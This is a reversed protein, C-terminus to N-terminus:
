KPEGQLIFAAWYYPNKWREQEAMQLQARRLASAPSLGEHFMASYFRRMLESTAVDDVAWLSAVVRSAGAYMFGRTLGVLGEGKINRGLGTECASLVVLDVPLNLNYIDQMELFGNQLKGNKGILSFVLGSLEPHENDLLGHTAFHVVQYQGLAPSMAKKRSADFGLAVMGRGPPITAMIARAEQQTFPLRPLYPTKDSSLVVDVAARTLSTARLSTAAPVMRGKKQLRRSLIRVRADDKGFVPDALVAVMKGAKPHRIADHRLVELVSASPLSVIEHNLVLFPETETGRVSQSIPLLAFPIYQLAGDSVLLLRKKKGIDAAVPELVLESLEAAANPYQLDAEAIRAERQTRTEGIPNADRATLLKYLRQAATEIELRKPLEHSTVQTRSIVWVYSRDEGLMYELLLTDEDLLNHQVDGATLPQPQTLSAYGPSTARIKGEVEEYQISLDDLEKKLESVKTEPGHDSLLQILRNSRATVREQLAREQNLLSPSVGTHIDAHAENLMELLSRARSREWVQFASESQQNRMLLDIYDLYYNLHQTRFGVRTEKGGGVRAIQAELVNLAKDFLEAATRLDGKKKIVSALAALSEAQVTSNPAVRERIALSRQYYKEAKALDGTDQALEGSSQLSQAFDLSEPALKERIEIAQQYYNQARALDNRKQALVGLDNLSIALNLSGPALRQKIALAEGHHKEAAAWDGRDLAIAGLNTFSQAVGLSGPAVKERLALAQQLYKEARALDGRQWALVGLNNLSTALDLSGPALRQQILIGRQLTEEAQTLDGRESFVKFLGILPGAVELGEPPHKTLITLAQQYYAEAEGLEGRLSATNGLNTLERAADISAPALSEIMRLALQYYKDAEDLQGQFYQISGLMNLSAAARLSNAGGTQSKALAQRACEVSRQWNSRQIYTRAWASWLQSEIEPAADVSHDIAQQYEEDAESWQKATALSEAAQLNLWVSVLSLQLEQAKRAGERWRGAASTYKDDKSLRQGDHYIALLMEPLDPRAKVEWRGSGLRWTQKTAGRLGLLTVEGRAGQEAEVWSLDLPSTIKGKDDGRRWQEIIDGAQLGARGAESGKTVSEVIAGIQPAASRGDRSMLAIVSILTLSCIRLHIM